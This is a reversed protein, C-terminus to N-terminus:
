VTMKTLKSDEQKHVSKLFIQYCFMGLIQQKWSGYNTIKITIFIISRTAIRVKWRGCRLKTENTRAIKLPKLCKTCWFGITDSIIKKRKLKPQNLWFSQKFWCFIFKRIKTRRPLSKAQVKQYEVKVKLWLFWKKAFLNASSSM